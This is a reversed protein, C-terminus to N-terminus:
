YSGDRRYVHHVPTIIATVAIGTISPKAYIAVSMHM